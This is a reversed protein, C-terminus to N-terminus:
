YFEVKIKVAKTEIEDILFDQKLDGVITEETGFVISLVGKDYDIIFNTDIKPIVEIYYCGITFGHIFCEKQERFKFFCTDTIFGRGEDNYLDSYHKRSVSFWKGNKQTKVYVREM